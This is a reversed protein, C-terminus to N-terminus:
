NGTGDGERRIVARLDRALSAREEETLFEGIELERGHSSLKLQSPYWGKGPELVVRVWARPFERSELMRSRGREIVVRGDDVRVVERRANRLLCHYFALGLVLVELGSFPLVLVMGAWFFAGGIMLEVVAVAALVQKAERWTMSNNPSLIFQHGLPAQYSDQTVM